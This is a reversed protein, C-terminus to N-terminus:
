ARGGAKDASRRSGSGSRRRSIFFGLQEVTSPPPDRRETRRRQAEPSTQRSTRREGRARREGVRRDWVVHVLGRAELYNKLMRFLEREGPRVVAIYPPRRDTTHIRPPPKPGPGPEKM